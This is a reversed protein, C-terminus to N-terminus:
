DTHESLDVRKQEVKSSQDILSDPIPNISLCDVHKMRSGERYVIYFDFSQLYSWWRRVRPSLDPKIKPFKLANCDTVVTFKRGQLYHRFLKVANVVALTELDYSHYKAECSTRRSYYAVVHQKEETKQILM